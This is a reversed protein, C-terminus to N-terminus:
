MRWGHKICFNKGGSISFTITQSMVLYLDTKIVILLFTVHTGNGKWPKKTILIWSNGIQMEWLYNGINDPIITGQTIKKNEPARIDKPSTILTFNVLIKTLLKVRTLKKFFLMCLSHAQPPPPHPPHLICAYYPKIRMEKDAASILNDIM